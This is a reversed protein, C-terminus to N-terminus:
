ADSRERAAAAWRCWAELRDVAVGLGNACGAARAAAVFAPRRAPDLGLRLRAAIADVDRPDDVLLDALPGPMLEPAGTARSTVVPVGSALAELIAVPCGEHLSPLAFLDAAAYFREVDRRPGTFVVPGALERAVRQRQALHQDNGVVVLAANAPPARRWVELLVDVGKRRFGSGVLAVVPQTPGIGLEARVAAGEAVRRAPHFREVDVGYHLVSVKAPPMAPYSELIEQRSLESVALVMGRTDAAYQRREIALMLRHYPSLRQRVARLPGREAAVRALWRKHVGGSARFLDWGVTRGFGVVVDAGIARWVRPALLAFSALKALKGARVVSVRHVYMGAPPPVRCEGVVLHVEHGRDALQRSLEHCDWEAGGLRDYRKHVLALKM